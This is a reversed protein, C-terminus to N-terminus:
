PKKTTHRVGTPKTFSDNALFLFPNSCRRPQLRARRRNTVPTRIEKRASWALKHIFPVGDGSKVSGQSRALFKIKSDNRLQLQSCKTQQAHSDFWSSRSHYGWNYTRRHRCKRWNSTLESQRHRRTEFNSTQCNRVRKQLSYKEYTKSKRTHQKVRFIMQFLSFEPQSIANRAQWKPFFLVCACAATNSQTM